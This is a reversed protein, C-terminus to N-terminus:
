APIVAVLIQFTSIFIMRFSKILKIKSRKELEQIILESIQSKLEYNQEQCGYLKADRNKPVFNDKCFCKFEHATLSQCYTNPGKCPDFQCPNKCGVTSYANGPDSEFFGSLCFCLGRADMFTNPGCNFEKPKESLYGLKMLELIVNLKFKAESNSNEKPISCLPTRLQDCNNTSIHFDGYHSM